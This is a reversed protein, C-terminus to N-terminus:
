DGFCRRLSDCNEFPINLAQLVISFVSLVLMVYLKVVYMTKTVLAYRTHRRNRTPDLGFSKGGPVMCRGTDFYIGNVILYSWWGQRHEAVEVLKGLLVDM